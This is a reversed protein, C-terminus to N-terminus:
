KEIALWLPTRNSSDKSNLDVGEKKFLLKVVELNGSAAALLLPTTWPRRGHRSGPTKTQIRNNWNIDRNNGIHKLVEIRELQIATTIPSKYIGSCDFPDARPHGLIINAIIVQGKVL